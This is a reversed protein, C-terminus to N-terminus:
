TTWHGRGIPAPPRCAIQVFKARTAPRLAGLTWSDTRGASASRIRTHSKPDVTSAVFVTSPALLLAALCTILKTRIFKM